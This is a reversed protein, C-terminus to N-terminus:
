VYLGKRTRTDDDFYMKFFSDLLISYFLITVKLSYVWKVENKLTYLFIGKQNIDYGWFNGHDIPLYEFKNRSKPEKLLM